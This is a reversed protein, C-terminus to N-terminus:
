SSSRSGAPQRPSPSTGRAAGAGRRPQRSRLENLLDREREAAKRTMASALHTGRQEVVWYGTATQKITLREVRV